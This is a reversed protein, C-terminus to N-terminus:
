LGCGLALENQELAANTAKVQERNWYCLENARHLYGFQYITANSNENLIQNTKSDWTVLHRRNVVQQATSLIQYANDLVSAPDGGSVKSKVAEVLTKMFQARLLDIEVGDHIEQQWVDESSPLSSQVSEIDTIFGTLKDIIQAQLEEATLELMQKFTPRVPQSIFGQTYGVEMINDVGCYYGALGEEILWKKQIEALQYVSSAVQKGNEYNGFMEELVSLYSEPTKWNMRLTAVDNQWYGWEWGSSFLTHDTLSETGNENAWQQIEYMDLWRSRIYLPLYTPVSNDFAVWYASEPFYAVKLGKELRDFLFERHETFDEHHYAGNAEEFLNYYMVTHVWPTIAPDAYTALFYYIMEQGDYTVQLNDGVHLRSTVEVTPLVELVTQYAEDIMDIFEQPEQDYFEGFSMEIVDFDATQGILSMRDLIQQSRDGNLDDILDYANQLNANGFLQLGIGVTAGRQHINNVISETHGQWADYAIPNEIIDDLAVWELYNGRNKITWDIVRKARELSDASPEWFDYYGEIPHLTHLHIGRRTMEPIQLEGEGLVTEPEEIDKPIYTQYPHNFRYGMAELFRSLGYQKGLTDGTIRWYKKENEILYGDDVFNGDQLVISIGRSWRADKAPSDSYSWKIRQDAIFDIYEALFSNEEGAPQWVLISDQSCGLALWIM